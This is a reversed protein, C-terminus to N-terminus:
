PPTITGPPFLQQQGKHLPMEPRKPPKFINMQSKRIGGAIDATGKQGSGLVSEKGVPMAGKQYVKSFGGRWWNGIKQGIGGLAGYARKGLNMLPMALKKGIGFITSFLGM